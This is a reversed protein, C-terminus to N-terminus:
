PGHDNALQRRRRREWVWIKKVGGIIQKERKGRKGAFIGARGGRMRQQGALSEWGEERGESKRVPRDFNGGAKGKTERGFIRTRSGGSGTM